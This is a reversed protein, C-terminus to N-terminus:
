LPIARLISSERSFQLIQSFRLIKFFDNSFHSNPELISRSSVAFKLFNAVNLSFPFDRSKAFDNLQASDLLVELDSTKLSAFRQKEYAPKEDDTVYKLINLCM